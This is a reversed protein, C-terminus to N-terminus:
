GCAGGILRSLSLSDAGSIRELWKSVAPLQDLSVGGEVVAQMEEDSPVEESLLLGFQDLAARRLRPPMRFFLDGKNDRFAIELLMDNRQELVGTPPLYGKVQKSCEILRTFLHMHHSAEVRSELTAKDATVLGLGKLDDKIEGGEIWSMLDVEARRIHGVTAIWEGVLNDVLENQKSVEANLARSAKGESRLECMRDNLTAINKQGQIIEAMLSNAKLVLGAYFPAGTTFYKCGSCAENRWVGAERCNQGPCIGDFRVDLFPSREDILKHLLSRPRSEETGQRDTYLRALFATREDVSMGLIAERGPRRAELASSIERTLRANSIVEYYFTMIISAHGVLARVVQPPVGMELLRTVGTVRLSHIDFIPEGGDDFFRLTTSNKLNYKAEVRKLLSRFYTLVMNPKLPRHNRNDPDRFIPYIMVADGAAIKGAASEDDIRDSIPEEIINFRRQWDIVRQVNTAISEDLFPFEYERGTKNTNVYMGLAWEERRSNVKVRRLFAEHRRKTASTLANRHHELAGLELTYEDGEGSDLFRGQKHRLPVQLLLDMLVAPGPWWTRVYANVVPDLVFRHDLLFVHMSGVRERSFAFDNARNEVILLDLIEQDLARRSTGLPRTRNNPVSYGPIPCLRTHSDGKIRNAAEWAKTLMNYVCRIAPPQFGKQKAWGIFSPANDDPHVVLYPKIDLLTPPVQDDELTLLFSLWHSIHASETSAAKGAIEPFVTRLSKTHSRLNQGAPLRDIDIYKHKPSVFISDEVWAWLVESGKQAPPAILMEANHIDASNVKAARLADAFQYWWLLLVRRHSTGVQKRAATLAAALAEPCVRGRGIEPQTVAVALCAASVSSHSYSERFGKTFRVITADIGTSWAQRSEVPIMLTDVLSRYRQFHFTDWARSVMRRPFLLHGRMALWAAFWFHALPVKTLQNPLRPPPPSDLYAKLPDLVGNLFSETSSSINLLEVLRQSASAYQCHGPSMHRWSWSMDRISPRLLREAVNIQAELSMSTIQVLAHEASNCATAGLSSNVAAVLSSANAYAAERRSAPTLCLPSDASLTGHKSGRMGPTRRSPAAWLAVLAADHEECYRHLLTQMERWKIERLLVFSEGTAYPATEHSGVVKGHACNIEDRHEWIDGEAM